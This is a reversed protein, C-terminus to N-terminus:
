MGSRCNRYSREVREQEFKRGVVRVRIKTKLARANLKSTLLADLKLTHLVQSGLLGLAKRKLALTAQIKFKCAELADREVMIEAIEDETPEPDTENIRETWAQLSRSCEAESASLALVM